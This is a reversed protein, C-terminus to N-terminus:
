PALPEIRLRVRGPELTLDAIRFSRKSVQWRFRNAVPVGTRLYEAGRQKRFCRVVDALVDPMADVDQGAASLVPELRGAIWAVPVPASGAAVQTMRVIIEDTKVTFTLHASVIAQWGQHNLRAALIVRGPEFAVMPEQLFDPIWTESETWVESRVAIWKSVELDTLTVDFPKGAVLRDGFDSVTDLMSKRVQSYEAEPVQPPRYWGPVHAVCFWLIVCAVVALGVFAALGILLRRKLRKGTTRTMRM